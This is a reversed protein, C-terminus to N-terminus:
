SSWWQYWPSDSATEEEIAPVAEPAQQQVTPKGEGAAWASERDYSRGTPPIPNMAVPISMFGLEQCERVFSVWDGYGGGVQAIGQLVSRLDAPCVVSIDDQDILFHTITVENQGTPQILMNKNVNHFAPLNLQPVQGFFVIEPTEFMSVAVFGDGSSPIELLDGVRAVTHGLVLPDRQNRRRLARIAGYRTEFDGLNLLSKLAEEAHYSDMSALANFCMARFAPESTCLEVLVPIARRDGLYALSHACYFRIERDPHSLQAALPERGLDGVAELELCAERAAEPEATLQGALAQVRLEREEPTENFGLRTVVNAFHYPDAAYRVPIQLEIYDDSLPTAIGTQKHGDFYTFRENIAPVVAAMTIADAFESSVGLGIERAKLLRAGGVVVAETKAEAEQSGTYQALTVLPGEARAREFSERITGGLNGMEVLATERLWGQRLDVAESASALKVSVNIRDGKRAAPPVATFAVVMATQSSDLISNPQPVDNRRMMDLMKERSQGPKVSGGTGPLHTVLAVNELAGLTLQRPSAIESVLTPRTTAELQERIRARRAEPSNPDAKFSFPTTCGMALLLVLPGISAAKRLYGLRM